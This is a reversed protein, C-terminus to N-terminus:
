KIKEFYPLDDLNVKINMTKSETITMGNFSKWKGEPIVVTRLTAGKILVPAVLLNDGLLFQDTICAYGRNPYNFGMPQKLVITNYKVM